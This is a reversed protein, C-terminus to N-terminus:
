FLIVPSYGKAKLDAVQTKADELKAFSGNILHYYATSQASLGLFLAMFGLLFFGRMRSVILSYQM